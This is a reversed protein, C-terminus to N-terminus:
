MSCYLWQHLMCGQHAGQHARSPWRLCGHVLCPALPVVQWLFTQPGCRATVSGCSVMLPASSACCPQECSRQMLEDPMRAGDADPVDDEAAPAAAGAEPPAPPAAPVLVMDEPPAFFAALFECVRQDARVRVPLLAVHLRLEEAPSAPDPRM